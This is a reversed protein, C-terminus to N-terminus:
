HDPYRLNQAGPFQGADDTWQTKLVYDAEDSM